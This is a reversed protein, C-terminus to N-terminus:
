REYVYVFVGGVDHRDLPGMKKKQILRLGASQMEHEFMAEHRKFDGIMDLGSKLANNELESLQVRNEKLAMDIIFNHYIFLSKKREVDNSFYPLLEGGM